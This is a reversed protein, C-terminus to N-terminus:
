VSPSALPPINTRRLKCCAPYHHALHCMSYYFTNGEADELKLWLPEVSDIFTKFDDTM